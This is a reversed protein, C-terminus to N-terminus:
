LGMMRGIGRARRKLSDGYGIEVIGKCMEWGKSENRLPLQLPGPISTKMLMPWKDECVAKVNCLSRLGEEGAFRGYGSGKIGGFPLQVAYYVGFDNISVMGSKIDRAVRRLDKTSNGFVSAGLGYETGNAIELAHDVSNAKMVVCVPAFLENNAIDMEPTVDALLTPMFYHGSPYEPHNYRKGGALLRAGKKVADQIYTELQGYGADSVSAGVDVVAADKPNGTLSDLASGSRLKCIIAELRPVVIDYVRPLCIIREIGICNQGASQFTGRVLTAIVRDLDKVDDLLIAPDKGGLEVCLPILAKAASAAVKHAVPRSGIFTIHSIGPHSTLHDAAKPWCAISQVLNPNHGCAKLAGQVISTFYGSSWATQESGKVVIGNGSFIASIM